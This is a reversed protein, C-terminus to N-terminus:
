RTLAKKLLRALPTELYRHIVHTALLMFVVVLLVTLYQNLYVHIYNTMIFGINQHILYLPYTLAGFVLMYKKNLFALKNLAIGLLTLNALTILSFVVIFSYETKHVEELYPLKAYLYAISILYSAILIAVSRKELGNKRISCYMAGAIFYPAWEAIIISQIIAPLGGVISLFSALLWVAFIMQIHHIKKLYVLFAIFAYFHIEILLTWYVGDVPPISLLQPLMTLNAVFQIVSIQYGQQSFLNITLTTLIVGIWLAPYLRVIRSSAFKKFNSNEASMIIVFGSILFFLDVGFQGYKFFEQASPFFTQTLNFTPGVFIYHYLVVSLAACFRILDLEYYRVKHATHSPSPKNIPTM